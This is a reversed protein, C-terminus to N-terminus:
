RVSIRGPSRASFSDPKPMPSALIARCLPPLRRSISAISICSRSCCACCRRSWPRLTLFAGKGSSEKSSAKANQRSSRTERGKARLPPTARVAVSDTAIRCSRGHGITSRFSSRHRGRYCWRRASARAKLGMEIAAPDWSRPTVSIASIVLAFRAIPSRVSVTTPAFPERRPPDPRRLASRGLAKAPHRVATKAFFFVGGRQPMPDRFGMPPGGRRTALAAHDAAPHFYGDIGRGRDSGARGEIRAFSQNLAHLPLPRARELRAHRGLWSLKADAPQKRQMKSRKQPLGRQVGTGSALM